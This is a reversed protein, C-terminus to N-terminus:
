NERDRVKLMERNTFQKFKEYEKLLLEREGKNQSLNQDWMM